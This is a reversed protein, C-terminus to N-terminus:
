LPLLTARIKPDPVIMLSAPSDKKPSTFMPASAVYVAKKAAISSGFTLDMTYLIFEPPPDAIAESVM